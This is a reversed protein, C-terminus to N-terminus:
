RQLECKMEKLAYERLKGELVGFTQLTKKVAAYIKKEKPVSV